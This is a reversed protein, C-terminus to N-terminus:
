GFYGVVPFYFRHSWRWCISTVNLKLFLNRNIGPVMAQVGPKSRLDAGISELGPFACEEQGLEVLTLSGGKRPDTTM